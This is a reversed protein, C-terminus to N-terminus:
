KWEIKNWKHGDSEFIIAGEQDTRFIMVGKKRLRRLVDPSPHKFQNKYGVSIVAIKPKVFNIFEEGTSTKSGHHGCKIIDSQLFEHYRAIMMAEAETQADGTLLLSTCGYLIKVVVSQNNINESNISDRNTVPNLVYLRGNDFDMVSEGRKVVARNAGISDILFRYDKYIASSDVVGPDIIKGIRYNRIIYPIGGLHDHDPHSNVILDIRNIGKKKLFPSIFRMGADRNITKPGGDILINKGGPEQISRFLV